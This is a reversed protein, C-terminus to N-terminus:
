PLSYVGDEKRGFYIIFQNTGHRRQIHVKCIETGRYFHTSAQRIRSLWKDKLNLVAKKVLKQNKSDWLNLHICDQDSLKSPSSINYWWVDTYGYIWQKSNLEKVTRSMNM